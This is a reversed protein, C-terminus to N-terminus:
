ASTGAPEKVKAEVLEGEINIQIDNSVVFKGDLMMDFRMGFDKRNIKTEAAYGIRHGMMPDDFEGYKVVNLTVPHTVGKITLDGTLTGRDAGKPEIKTSKFTITPFKDVELFNSARLDNDRQENHTRISATNITVTVSSREPQDPYLDGSATLEAFHGRVTMMGLHKASFEVQTHMPDFKWTGM